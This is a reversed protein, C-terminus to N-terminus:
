GAAEAQAEEQEELAEGWQEPELLRGRYEERDYEEVLAELRAICLGVVAKPGNPLAHEAEELADAVCRVGALVSLLADRTRELVLNETNDNSM